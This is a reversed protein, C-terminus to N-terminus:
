RLRVPSQFHGGIVDGEGWVELNVSKVDGDGDWARDAHVETVALL